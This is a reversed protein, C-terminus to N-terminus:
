RNQRGWGAQSGAISRKSKKFFDWLNKPPKSKVRDTSITAAGYCHFRAFQYFLCECIFHTSSDVANGCFDCDPDDRIGLIRLHGNNAWHGTYITSRDNNETPKNKPWHPIQCKTWFVWKYATKSTLQRKNFALLSQTRLCGSRSLEIPFTRCPQCSLNRVWSHIWPM